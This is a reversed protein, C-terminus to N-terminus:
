GKTPNPNHSRNEEKKIMMDLAIPYRYKAFEEYFGFKSKDTRWPANASGGSVPPNQVEILRVWVKPNDGGLHNSLGGEAKESKEETSKIIEYIQTRRINLHREIYALHASGLKRIMKNQVTKWTSSPLEQELDHFGQNIFYLITLATYMNSLKPFVHSSTTIKNIIINEIKDNPM